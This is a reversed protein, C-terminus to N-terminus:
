EYHSSQKYYTQAYMYSHTGSFIYLDLIIVWPTIWGKIFGASNKIIWVGPIVKEKM